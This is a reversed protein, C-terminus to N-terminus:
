RSPATSACTARARSCPTPRYAPATLFFLLVIGADAALGAISAWIGRAPLLSALLVTGLLSLVYPDIRLRNLLRTVM